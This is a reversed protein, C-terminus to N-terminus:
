EKLIYPWYLYHMMKSTDFLQFYLEVLRLWMQFTKGCGKGNYSSLSLIKSQKQAPEDLQLNPKSEGISSMLSTQTGVKDEIPIRTKYYPM